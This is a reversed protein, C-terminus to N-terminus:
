TLKPRKGMIKPEIPICMNFNSIPTLRPPSYAQLEKLVEVAM